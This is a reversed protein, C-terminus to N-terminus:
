FAVAVTRVAEFTDKDVEVKVRLLYTGPPVLHGGEDLGDWTESYVGRGREDALLIRVIHGSLDYIALETKSRDLGLLTLQIGLQDNIGDKNPTLVASSLSFDSLIELHTTNAFVRADDSTLEDSADGANISQPLNESGIAAVEGSFHTSFNLLITRFSIRIRETGSSQSIKNSPFYVALQGDDTRVSDPVVERGTEGIEMKVFEVDSLTNIRVIDFGLAGQSGFEALIDYVFLTNVGAPAVPPGEVDLAGAVGIEGVVNEVLLPSYEISLSNLRGFSRFDQSDMRFQLQLYSRGDPSRIEEGSNKYPTSWLSWNDLDDSIRGKDGPRIGLRISPEPAKNYTALDVAQEFGIDNYVHYIKPSDDYGTRTELVLEVPVDVVPIPETESDPKQFTEFDWFIRGLNVPTDLNLVVTRYKSTAVFGQGYVEIEGLLYEQDVLNFSIRLFRLIETPFRLDVVRNDNFYTRSILKDLTHYGSEESVLLYDVPDM